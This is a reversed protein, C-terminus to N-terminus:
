YASARDLLAVQSRTLHVAAAAVIDPIQDARSASVVPATVGPKTLLWAIAITSLAVGQQEAVDELAALVRFGRKTLYQEVRAARSHTEAARERGRSRYKGSLFGNALAFYPVVALGQAKAVPFLGTEFDQRHVLNYHAQIGTFRPLQLQGATIRAEILRDPTYNSSALNRVKGSRLLVDAATLSEELPVEPDDVHFYLLDIADIGLRSLSAETARVIHQASLGPFEAGKAVKTSIVVSDRNRRERLWSGILTESRGTAYSDATDIANGGREVFADLIQLTADASATWGFTSGGLIVPFVAFDADGFQRLRHRREPVDLVPRTESSAMEDLSRSIVSIAEAVAPETRPDAPLAGPAPWHPARADGAASSSSEM